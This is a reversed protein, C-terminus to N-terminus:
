PWVAFTFRNFGEPRRQPADCPDPWLGEAALKGLAQPTAELADLWYVSGSPAARQAPKPRWNALDWGSVVQARPVAASVLRACAAWSSAATPRSAPCVGDTPSVAPRRAVRM